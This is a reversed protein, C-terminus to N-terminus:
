EEEGFSAKTLEAKLQFAGTGVIREGARLGSAVTVRGEGATPGLTVPRVAYRGPSATAVFVVQKGNLEQVATEPVVPRSAAGPAPPADIRVTAFMGPRLRLAENEVEVRVKFTRSQPDVV